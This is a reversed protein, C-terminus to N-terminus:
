APPVEALIFAAGESHVRMKESTFWADGPRFPQGDVSGEGLVAIVIRERLSEPVEAEGRVDLREVEFYPSTVPLTRRGEWPTLQAVELGQDLHLERKRGADKRDYDYLRYTKDSNQQIECVVLGAGLAHVTGAPIFFTDGARAPLWELLDVVKGSLCASKLEEQSVERRVGIAVQAKEDARLVHWMETKGRASPTDGPHVQVSLRDTTLLIKVLLPSSDSAAFWIEGINRGETNTFWPETLKTGWVRDQPVPILKM